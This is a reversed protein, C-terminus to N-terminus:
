QRSRTYFRSSRTKPNIWWFKSQVSNQDEAHIKSYFVGFSKLSSKIFSGKHKLKLDLLIEETLLSVRELEGTFMDKKELNLRFERQHFRLSLKPYNDPIKLNLETNKVIDDIFNKIEEKEGEEIDNEDVTKGWWGSLYGKKSDVKKKLEEQYKTQKIQEEIWSRIKDMNMGLLVSEYFRLDEEDLEHPDHTKSEMLINFIELFHAKINKEGRRSYVMVKNIGRRETRINGIIVQKAYKWYERIIESKEESTEALRIIRMPRIMINEFKNAKSRVFTSYENIVNLIDVLQKIQQKNLNIQCADLSISIEFEPNGEDILKQTLNHQVMQGETSFELLYNLLQLNKNEKNEENYILRILSEKMAQESEALDGIFEKENANWYVRFNKLILKKHINSDKRQTRDVFQAEEWDENCTFVRLSDLTM